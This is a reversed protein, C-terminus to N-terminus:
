APTREGGHTMGMEGHDGTKIIVTNDILGRRALANMVDAVYEDTSAILNAYFNLYEKPDATKNGDGSAMLNVFDAQVAPKTALSEGYTAPVQVDGYFDSQEYGAAQWQGPYFLVDHPNVLSIVLFFPKKASAVRTLYPLAGEDGTAADGDQEMFRLDNCTTDQCDGAAGQNLNQNAGADAPNWRTWGYQNVDEPVWGRKVDDPDSSNGSAKSLHWKGKFVVDYGADSMLTALNAIDLNLEVQSYIDEPMNEELTFRVGHQAPMLGSFLTARAASCMCSATFARDFTLGHRKLATTAPMNKAEWGAPFHM